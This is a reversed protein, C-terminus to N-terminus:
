CGFPLIRSVYTFIKNYRGSGDGVGALFRLSFIALLSPGVLCKGCYVCRGGDYTQALWQDMIFNLPLFLCLCPSALITLLLGGAM